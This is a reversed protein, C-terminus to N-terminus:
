RPGHELGSIARMRPTAASEATAPEDLAAQDGFGPALIGSAGNAVPRRRQELAHEPEVREGLKWPEVVESVARVLDERPQVGHGLL